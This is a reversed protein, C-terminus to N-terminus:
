KVVEYNERLARRRLSLLVALAALCLAIFAIFFYGIPSRGFAHVSQIVGSRTVFTAFLCLAFTLSILWLNWTKFADRREQMMLSHLLATARLASADVPASTAAGRNPPM